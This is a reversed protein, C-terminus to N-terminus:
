LVVALACLVCSSQNPFIFPALTPLSSEVDGGDTVCFVIAEVFHNARADPAAAKSVTPLPDDDNDDNFPEGDAALIGGIRMESAAEDSSSDEGVVERSVLLLLGGAGVGSWGSLLGTTVRSYLLEDGKRGM